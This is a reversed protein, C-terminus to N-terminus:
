PAGGAGIPRGLRYFRSLTRAWGQDPAIAWVESTRVMPGRLTPHGHLDGVLCPRPRADIMWNDVIPASGLETSTPAERRAIRRLDVALGELRGIIDDLDEPAGDHGVIITM